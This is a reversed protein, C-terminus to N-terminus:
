VTNVLSKELCTNCADCYQRVPCIFHVCRCIACPKVLDIPWLSYNIRFSIEGWLYLMVNLAAKCECRIKCYHKALWQIPSASRIGLAIAGHSPQNYKYINYIYEAQWFAYLAPGKKGRGDTSTLPPQFHTMLSFSSCFRAHLLSGWGIIKRRNQTPMLNPFKKYCSLSFLPWLTQKSFPSFLLQSFSVFSNDSFLLRSLPVKQFNGGEWVFSYINEGHSRKNHVM